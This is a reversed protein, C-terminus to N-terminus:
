EETKNCYITMRFEGGYTCTFLTLDFDGSTMEEVASPDLVDKGVVEYLTAEGDMDTFVVSEGLELQAIEGFHSTYNHAMIVLDEGLLTGAYRCPAVSLLNYDWTSIVPLEINLKRISLYGIYPIGNIEVETMQKEEETLLDVPKQLEVKPMDDAESVTADQNEQIQNLLEPMVEASSEGATYDEQRNNLFLCVAGLILVVGLVMCFIGFKRRLMM